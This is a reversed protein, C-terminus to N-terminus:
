LCAGVILLVIGAAIMLIGVPFFLCCFPIGVLSLVLGTITVASMGRAPAYFPQPMYIQNVMQVSQTQPQPLPAPPPSGPSEIPEYEVRRTQVSVRDHAARALSHLSDLSTESYAAPVISQEAVAPRLKVVCVDCVVHDQWVHAAELKGIPIGCNACTEM